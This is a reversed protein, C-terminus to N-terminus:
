NCNGEPNLVIEPNGAAEEDPLQVVMGACDWPAGNITLSPNGNVAQRKLDHLRNGEGVLELRREAQIFTRLANAGQGPNVPDLGARTRIANLDSEATTLDGLEVACEARILMVEALHVIPVNFFDANFRTLYIRESAQLTDQSIYWQRRLDATDAVAIAHFAQSIKGTPEAGTLNTSRYHGAIGGGSNDLNGTSILAFINEANANASFRAMVDPNLSFGGNNIVDTALDFANQFQNMQFYVRALYAKAGWSTVYGNNETPLGAIADQLDAIIQTYVEGVTARPIRDTNAAVRLPIGTHNNDASSGYPQAFFRIEEFHGMARLFKAEAIMRTRESDSLGQVEDIRELLVNARYIVLYGQFWLDRSASIFIGTNHTHYALFDGSLTRGDMNDAMLDSLMWVNGGYFNGARLVDYNSSLLRQADEPTRMAEEWLLANEPPTDLFDQCGSLGIVLALSFLYITFRKM